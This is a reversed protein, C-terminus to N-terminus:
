IRGGVDPDDEIPPHLGLGGRAAPTRLDFDGRGVDSVRGGGPTRPTSFSMSPSRYTREESRRFFEPTDTGRRSVSGVPSAYSSSPSNIEQTTILTTAVKNPDKFDTGQLHEAPIPHPSGIRLINEYTPPSTPARAPTTSKFDKLPEPTGATSPNTLADLSVFEHNKHPNMRWLLEKWGQAISNRYLLGCSQLGSISLLVLIAVITAEKVMFENALAYCKTRDGGSEIICMLWDLTKEGSRGNTIKEQTQDLQIFVVAFAVVDCILACVIAMGRWQLWLVKMVRRYVAKASQTRLSATYSPLSSSNETSM